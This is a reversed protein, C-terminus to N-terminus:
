LLRVATGWGYVEFVSKSQNGCGVAQSTLRYDYHVHVVGNGGSAAAADALAKNAAEYAEQVPLGGSGGCGASKPTRSIITHVMGIVEYPQNINGAAILM